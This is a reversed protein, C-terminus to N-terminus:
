RLEYSLTVTVVVEASGPQIQTDAPKASAGSDAATAFMPRPEGNFNEQYNIIKGLKFGAIKAANEAKKKAMDVAEQRAKNEADTKDSIDFTIGSVENAGAATSADIISNVKDTNKVKIEINSTAMFSSVASTAGPLAQDPSISYNTTKIDKDTVGQKKVAEIVKNIKTNLQDQAAKVSAGTASVGVNVVAEDPIASFKGEGMVNFTDSKTTTVSTVSFPIPGALKTYAFLLVFFFLIVAFPSQIRQM